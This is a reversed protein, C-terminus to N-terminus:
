NHRSNEIVGRRGAAQTPPQGGRDFTARQGLESQPVRGDGKCAALLTRDYNDLKM